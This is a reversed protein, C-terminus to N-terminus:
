PSREDPKREADLEDKRVPSNMVTEIVGAPTLTTPLTPNRSYRRAIKILSEAGYVGLMGILFALGQHSNADPSISAFNAIPTTLFSASLAGSAGGILNEFLNKNNSTAYRVFSGAAGAFAHSNVLAVLATSLSEFMKM